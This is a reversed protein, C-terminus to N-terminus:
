LFICFTREEIRLSNLYWEAYPNKRFNGEFGDKKIIELIDKSPPAYAPVSYLGWHIFIGLKAGLFWDPVAHSNVSKKTPEFKM